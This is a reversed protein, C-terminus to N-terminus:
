VGLPNGTTVVVKPAGGLPKSYEPVMMAKKVFAEYTMLESIILLIAERMGSFEVKGRELKWSIFQNYTNMCKKEIIITKSNVMNLLVSLSGVPDYRRPPKISVTQFSSLEAWLRRNLEKQFTKKFEQFMIKNGVIRDATYKKLYMKQILERSAKDPDIHDLMIENHVYLKNVEEDYVACLGSISMDKDIVLAAFNRNKFEPQDWNINISDLFSDDMKGVVHKQGGAKPIYALAVADAEDPSQIGRKLMSEKSECKIKGTETYMKKPSCLQAKLNANNPISILEDEPYTQIGM